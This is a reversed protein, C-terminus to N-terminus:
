LIARLANALRERDQALVQQIEGLEHGAEAPEGAYALVRQFLARRLRRRVQVKMAAARNEARVGGASAIECRRCVESLGPKEEALLAPRLETAEFVAWHLGLGLTACDARVQRVADCLLGLSWAFDFERDPSLGEHVDPIDPVDDRELSVLGGAPRRKKAKQAHRVDSAYNRLVAKLFARFRGPRGDGRDARSLVDKEWLWMFFGQTLEEAREASVGQCRLLRYVPLWYRVAVTEAADRRHEAITGGVRLIIEWQTQPLIGSKRSPTMDAM